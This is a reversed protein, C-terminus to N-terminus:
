KVDWVLRFLLSLMLLQEERAVLQTERDGQLQSQEQLSQRDSGSNGLIM